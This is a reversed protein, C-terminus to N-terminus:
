NFILGGTDYLSVLKIGLTDAQTKLKAVRNKANTDDLIILNPIENFQRQLDYVANNSIMVKDFKDNIPKRYFARIWLNKNKRFEFKIMADNELHQKEYRKVGKADYYNKLHFDYARENLYTSSDCIFRATKSKIMSLGSGRPIFHFALEEQDKQQWDDRVNMGFLVVAIGVSIYLLKPEKRIFFFLILLLFGYLLIVETISVSFGSLKSNPLGAIGLVSFNLVKLIAELIVFLYRGWNTFATVILSPIGVFLVGMSTLTVLPNTLLFYSPFQHFYFLSLPFTFLQASVSVVSIQWLSLLLKNRPQYWNNLYPYLFVIGFIALYSLQFGVEYLWNPRFLLLIFASGALVNISNKDRQILSGFQFMSFMLTARTVSPSFGTFMAYLWLLGITVFGFVWLGKPLRKLFGFVFNLMLMLIGVHLGSVALIHVAGAAAYAQRIDNDLEDKTGLLMAEAVALDQKESLHEKLTGAALSNLSYAWKFFISKPKNAILTYDGKRLFHHVLIDKKKLFDKYDFEHPNKPPEIERPAENVLFIDGYQPRLSDGRNIYLLMKGKLSQWGGESKISILEAQVKHSKPKLETASNVRVVYAEINELSPLTEARNFMNVLLGISFVASYIGVSRIFSSKRLLGYVSLILSLIVTVIIVNSSVISLRSSLIGAILFFLPRLFPYAKLSM